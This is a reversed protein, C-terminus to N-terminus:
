CLMSLLQSLRGSGARTPPGWGQVGSGAVVGDALPEAQGPEWSSM